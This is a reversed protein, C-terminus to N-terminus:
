SNKVVEEHGNSAASHLPTGGSTGYLNKKANVDAHHDILLHVIETFGNSAALHLPTECFEGRTANVDVGKNIELQVLDTDGNQAGEHLATFDAIM